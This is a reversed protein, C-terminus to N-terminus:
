DLSVGSARILGAWKDIEADLFTRVIRTLFTDGGELPLMAKPRGMRMSKGAALVIAPIM